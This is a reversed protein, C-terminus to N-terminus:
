RTIRLYNLYRQNIDYVYNVPETGRVYGYRAKSYYKRQQLMLMATEVNGFWKDDRLGIQRALRQADRVHGFGANYAALAFYVREHEPLDESFRDRTWNLYKVGGQISQEPDELNTVGFEKATRPLIQMLGQAGAYSKAKPNFKSEQYMQSVILRWDFDHKEASPQVIHDYPSLDSGMKLRNQIQKARKEPTKFYRNRVVNYYTTRYTTRVFQNLHDLLQPNNKRVVYAYPVDEKLTLPADINERFSQEIAVLNSDAITLDIEQNAVQSILIETALSEDAAEVIAGYDEALKQATDWFSSTKRVVITRGKLDELTNIAAAQTNAVLMESVRAYRISTALGAKNAKEIREPTRTLGAAIMDGEGNELKSIMDEFSDAVVMQLKINYKKAFKKMLDYEFGMLEGRWMFYTEPSNRTIVRLPLKKQKMAKIDLKRETDALQIIHSAAIYNNVYHLLDQNGKAVAWAQHVEKPFASVTSVGKHYQRLLKYESLDIVSYQIVGADIKDAIDEVNDTTDTQTINWSPAYTNISDIYASGSPVVVNIAQTLAVEKTGKKAIVVEKDSSLVDTFDVDKLRADSITLHRPIIDIEYKDLKSFMDTLSKVEVWDVTLSQSRAFDELLSHHYDSASAVAHLESESEWDLRVAIIVGSDKIEQWSRFTERVIPAPEPSQKNPQETEIAESAVSITSDTNSETAQSATDCSLIAFLSFLVLLLKVRM